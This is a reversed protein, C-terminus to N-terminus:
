WGLGEGRTEGGGWRRLRMEGGMGQRSSNNVPGGFIGAKECTGKQM